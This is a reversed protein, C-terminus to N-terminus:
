QEWAELQAAIVNVLKSWEVGAFIGDRRRGSPEHAAVVQHLFRKAEEFKALLTRYHNRAETLDVENM